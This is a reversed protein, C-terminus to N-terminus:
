QQSVSALATGNVANSNGNGSIRNDLVSGATGSNSIGYMTNKAIVSRSLLVSTNTGISVGIANNSIEDRDMTASVTGSASATVIGDSTNNNAVSNSINVAASGGSAASLDVAIGIANGGAIVHDIAGTATASGSAPLYHIGASGNNLAVTKVITFNITGSTPAIMIGNGSPGNGTIFDHVTCNSVTLTGGSNFVIGNYAAGAGDVELGALIVNGLGANVTIGNGQAPATIAAWGNGNVSVPYNITLPGYKGPNVATIIGGVGTLTFAHAFTACPASITCPNSDVGSSSVFTDALGQAFTATVSEAASMTVVCSGSGSCAGSWGSFFWGSAPTETLTVQMGGTYSASCTTGCSIGSPSSTVTGSGSVGVSLSYTIQTFTASVSEAANMSVVCSGTGSCAGSWGTFSYGSAPTENLTVQAGSAFAASCTTGCSIGSPSSTVTGSGTDSVSLAFAQAFTATVTEAGNMAVVCSGTGSCAGSWGSFISDSAPAATLTVQTGGVFSGACTSGCSIGSPSSTVTGSGSVSVSLEANGGGASAWNRVLNNVNVTGIGTAFDWGTQTTYAPAYANNNTSLM